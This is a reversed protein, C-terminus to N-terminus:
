IKAGDWWKLFGERPIKIRTGIVAVPFGLREPAMKATVNIAYQSCGLVGCVDKPILVTKNSARIEEITM